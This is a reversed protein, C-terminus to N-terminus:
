PVIYPKAALDLTAVAGPDGAEGKVDAAATWAGTGERRAYLLGGSDTAGAVHLRDLEGIGSYHAITVATFITGAANIERNVNVFPTWTGDRRRLTHFIQGADNVVCLHLASPSEACSLGVPTGPDGAQRKVDGFVPRVDSQLAHYLGGSVTTVCLHRFKEGAAGFPTFDVDVLPDAPDLAGPDVTLIQDGRRDLTRGALPVGVRLLPLASAWSGTMSSGIGVVAINFDRAISEASAPAIGTSLPTSFTSWGSGDLRYAHLLRSPTSATVACVHEQYQTAAVSVSAARDRPTPPTYLVQFPSWPGAAGSHGTTFIRGDSTSVALFLFGMKENVDAM